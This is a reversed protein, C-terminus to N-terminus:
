RERGKWGVMKGLFQPFVRGEEISAKGGKISGVLPNHAGLQLGLREWFDLFGEEIDVLPSPQFFGQGRKNLKQRPSSRTKLQM